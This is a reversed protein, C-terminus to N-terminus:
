TRWPHLGAAELLCAAEYLPLGVVASYSGNLNLVFRGAPGQIAYGGAKGRWDQTELYALIDNQSLRKFSVRTEVLRTRVAGEADIVCVGTFVRHARGSLLELCSRAQAETSAQPLIRRGCAVVTDAGLIIAAPEAAAQAKAIALRQALARPLEGELPTEDIATPSIADPTVGIQALLAVRRPSGSALVFRM